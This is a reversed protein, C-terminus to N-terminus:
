WYVEHAANLAEHVAARKSYKSRLRAEDDKIKDCRLDGTVLAIESAREENFPEEGLWHNCGVIRDILKAVSKPQGARLPAAPDNQAVAVNQTLVLLLFLAPLTKKMGFARTLGRRQHRSAAPPVDPPVSPEADTGGFTFRRRRM